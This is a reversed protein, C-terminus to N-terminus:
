CPKGSDDYNTDILGIENNENEIEDYLSKLIDNHYNIHKGDITLNFYKQLIEKQAQIEYETLLPVIYEDEMTENVLYCEVEYNIKDYISNNEKISVEIPNKEVIYLITNNKLDKSYIIEEDDNSIPKNAGNNSYVYEYDIEVNLQTKKDERTQGDIVSTINGKKFQIDWSPAYQLQYDATGLPFLVLNTDHEALTINTNELANKSNQPRNYQSDKIRQASENQTESLSIADPNYIVGDDYFEVYEPKLLGQMLLKKGHPTLVIDLVEENKNFFSM